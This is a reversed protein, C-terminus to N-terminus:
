PTSSMASTTALTATVRRSPARAVNAHGSPTGTLYLPPSAPDPAAGPRLKGANEDGVGGHLDGDEAGAGHARRHGVVEAVALLDLAHLHALRARADEAGEARPEVGRVDAGVLGVGAVHLRELRDQGPAGDDDRAHPRVVVRPQGGEREVEAGVE